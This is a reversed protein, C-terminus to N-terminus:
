KVILDVIQGKNFTVTTYSSLLCQLVFVTITTETQRRIQSFVMKSGKSIFYNGDKLDEIKVPITMFFAKTISNSEQITM